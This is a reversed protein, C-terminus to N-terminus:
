AVDALPPDRARAGPSASGDTISGPSSLPIKETGSQSRLTPSIAHSSTPDRDEQDPHDPQEAEGLHDDHRHDGRRDDGRHGQWQNRPKMSAAHWSRQGGRYQQERDHQDPGPDRDHDDNADGALAVVDGSVEVVGLARDGAPQLVDPHVRRLGAGGDLM